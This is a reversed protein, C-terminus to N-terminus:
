LSQNLLSEGTTLTVSNTSEKTTVATNRNITQSGASLRRTERANRSEGITSNTSSEDGPVNSTVVMQGGLGDASNKIVAQIGRKMYIQMSALAAVVIALIISYEVWSQAKHESFMGM